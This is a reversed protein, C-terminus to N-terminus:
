DYEDEELEIELGYKTLATEIFICLRTHQEDCMNLYKAGYVYRDNDSEDRYIIEIACDLSLLKFSDTVEAEFLLKQQLTLASKSYFGFGGGSINKVVVPEFSNGDKSINAEIGLLDTRVSIRRELM